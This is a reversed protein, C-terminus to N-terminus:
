MNKGSVGVEFSDSREEFNTMGVSCSWTGTHDTGLENFKVGCEGSDFGNGVYDFSESALATSSFFLTIGIRESNM